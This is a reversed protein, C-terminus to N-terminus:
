YQTMIDSNVDITIHAIAGGQFIVDSVFDM